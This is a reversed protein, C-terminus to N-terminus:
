PRFLLLPHWNANVTKDSESIRYKLLIVTEVMPAPDSQEMYGSGQYTFAFNSHPYSVFSVGNHTRNQLVTERITILLSM